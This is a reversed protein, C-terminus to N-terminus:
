GFRRKYKNKLINHIYIIVTFAITTIFFSIIWNYPLIKGLPLIYYIETVFDRVIFNFGIVLMTNKGLFIFYKNRFIAVRKSVIFVALSLSVASLLFLLLNGYENENMGVKSNYYASILGITTLGIVSVYFIWQKSETIIDIIKYKRINVGLWIFATAMFATSLNFPLRYGVCLYICYSLSLSISAFLLSLRGAYKNIIFVFLSAWFLCMLFWVSSCNPMRRDGAYGYIIALIYGLVEKLSIIERFFLLKWLVQFILNILCYIFYPILYSNFKIKIFKSCKMKKYKESNFLLGSIIFFMPMHFSYILKSLLPHIDITHGLIVLLIGIGKVADVWVLRDLNNCKENM